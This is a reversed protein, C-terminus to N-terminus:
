NTMLTFTVPRAAEVTQEGVLRISVLDMSCVRDRLYCKGEFRPRGTGEALHTIYPASEGGVRFRGTIPPVNTCTVIRNGRGGSRALFGYEPDPCYETTFEGPGIVLANPEEATPVRLEDFSGSYIDTLLGAVMHVYPQGSDDYRIFKALEEGSLSLLFDPEPHAATIAEKFIVESRRGGSHHVYLGLYYPFRKLSGRNKYVRDICEGYAELGASIATLAAIVIGISWRYAGYRRTNADAAKKQSKVDGEAMSKAVPSAAEYAAPGLGVSVIAAIGATYYLLKSAGTKAILIRIVLHTFSVSSITFALASIFGWVGSVVSLGAYIATRAIAWTITQMALAMAAAILGDQQCGGPDNKIFSRSGQIIKGVAFNDIRNGNASTITGMANYHEQTFSDLLQKLKPGFEVRTFPPPVRIWDLPNFEGIRSLWNNVLNDRHQDIAQALQYDNDYAAPDPGLRVVVESVQNGKGDKGQLRLETYTTRYDLEEGNHHIIQGDIKAPLNDGWLDLFARHSRENLEQVFERAAEHVEKPLENLIANVDLEANLDFEGVEEVSSFAHIHQPIESLNGKLIANYAQSNSNNGALSLNQVPFYYHGEKENFQDALAQSPFVYIFHMMILFASFFRRLAQLLSDRPNLVAHQVHNKENIKNELAM